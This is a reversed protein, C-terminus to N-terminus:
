SNGRRHSVLAGAAAGLLISYELANAWWHRLGVHPSGYYLPMLAHVALLVGVAVIAAVAYSNLKSFWSVLLTVLAVPVLVPLGFVVSMDWALVGLEISLHSRFWDFFGAPAAVASSYGILPELLFLMGTGVFLALIASITRSLRM